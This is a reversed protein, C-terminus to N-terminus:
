WTWVKDVWFQYIIGCWAITSITLIIILQIDEKSKNRKIKNM